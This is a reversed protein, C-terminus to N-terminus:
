DKQEAAITAPPGAHRDPLPRQNFGVAASLTFATDSELGIALSGFPGALLVRLPPV